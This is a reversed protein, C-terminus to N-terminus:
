LEIHTGVPCENDESSPDCCRLVSIHIPDCALLQQGLAAKGVTGITTMRIM